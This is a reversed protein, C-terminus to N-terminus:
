GNIWSGYNVIKAVKKGLFGAARLGNQLATQDVKNTSASGVAEWEVIDVANGLYHGWKSQDDAGNGDGLIANFYTGDKFVVSVIDGTTGFVPSVAILYYGNM